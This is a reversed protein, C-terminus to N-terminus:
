LFLICVPKPINLSFIENNILGSKINIEFVKITDSDQNGVLIYKGSPDLCFNRPTKGNTKFIGINTLKGTTNDIKYSAISDHGRNSGYLYKGNPSIHIDACTSKVKSNEPLTSISSILSLTQNSYDIKYNDITSDLENIVYLIKQNPHFVVHRPGSGPRTNVYNMNKKNLYGSIQDITYMYIKDQGLDPVILYKNTPDINVSHPHSDIQRSKNVNSGKGHHMVIPSDFLKGFESVPLFSVSKGSYNATYIYKGANDITIHCPGLGNCSASNIFELCKKSKNIKYSSIKSDRMDDLEGVSFLYKKNKSITLFSPNEKNIVSSIIKLEGTSNNFSLTYIGDSPSTKEKIFNNYTGVFILNNDSM